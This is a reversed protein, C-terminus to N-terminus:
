PCATPITLPFCHNKSANVPNRSLEEILQKEERQLAPRSADDAPMKDLRCQIRIFDARASDGNRKPWDACALRPSDDDPAHIVSQLLQDLKSM